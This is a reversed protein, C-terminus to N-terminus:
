DGKQNPVHMQIQCTLGSPEFRMSAYGGFERVVQREILRMGFGPRAPPEVAPGGSEVWDIGVQTGESSVECNWKLSVKGDPASLAGYKAANTGLEHFVMSLTVSSSPDIPCDSGEMDIRAEGFPMLAGRIIETMSASQWATGQLIDHAKSLAFLRGNFVALRQPSVSQLSHVALSQVTALTNKVRHNLEHLLLNQRERARREESIDRVEIITGVTRSTEDQIPSATFGVPYFSGDKHVFVEEGQVQHREPFARDIACEHLPFHRGDPHTHHIIDHLSKDLEIVEDLTFGTLNEAAKNMYICQQRDDMLFIAVTANNLVAELRRAADDLARPSSKLGNSMVYVKRANSDSITLLFKSGQMIKSPSTRAEALGILYYQVTAM